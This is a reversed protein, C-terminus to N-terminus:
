GRRAKRLMRRAGFSGTVSVVYNSPAFGIFAPDWAMVITNV